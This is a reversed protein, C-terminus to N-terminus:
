KTTKESKTTDTVKETVKAETIEESSKIKKPKHENYYAIGSMVSDALTSIIIDISRVSNTNAPIVYDILEPNANTDTLAVIRMGLIKAEKVAISEKKPDVVVLISPHTMGEIGGYITELKEVERQIDLKEKKTYSEFEGSKSKDRLSSLKRLNARITSVNTLMGGIWRNCVYFTGARQAELKVIESAQRKTGVFVIQSGKSAEENLFKSAEELNKATQSLDIIHVGLSQTYIYQSMKPHWRNAQHGYHVGADFLDKATPITKSM